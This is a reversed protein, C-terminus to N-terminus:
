FKEIVEEQAMLLTELEGVSMPESRSTITTIFLGYKKILGDLIAELSDSEDM